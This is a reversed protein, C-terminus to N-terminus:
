IDNSYTKLSITKSNLSYPLLNANKLKTDKFIIM